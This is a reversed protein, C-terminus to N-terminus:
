KLACSPCRGKLEIEANELTWGVVAEGTKDDYIALHSLPNDVRIDLVRHCVTCTMHHHRTVNADYRVQGDTGTFRILLGAGTLKDLSQYLTATPIVINKERLSAGLEETTPHSGKGMLHEMISIRAQTPRIGANQLLTETTQSEAM